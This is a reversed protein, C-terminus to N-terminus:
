EISDDWCLSSITLLLYMTFSFISTNIGQPRRLIAIPPWVSSLFLEMAIKRWIDLSSLVRRFVLRVQIGGVGGWMRPYFVCRWIYLVLYDFNVAFHYTFFQLLTYYRQISQRLQHHLLQHKVCSCTETHALNKYFISTTFDSKTIFKKTKHPCVFSCTFLISCCVHRTNM